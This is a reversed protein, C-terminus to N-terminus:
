TTWSRKKVPLLNVERSSRTREVDVTDESIEESPKAGSTEELTDKRPKEWNVHM